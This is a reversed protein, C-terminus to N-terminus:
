NQHSQYAERLLKINMMKTGVKAPLSTQADAKAYGYLDFVQPDCAQERNQRSRLM